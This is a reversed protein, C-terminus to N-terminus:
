NGNGYVEFLGAAGMGGGICMTVMGLGGGRRRLEHILTLTLKSGTCGLPHGMAVAGGNVNVKDESLGLERIVALSQCAFAENLEILDVDGLEVGTRKMLKPIAEVPGIGMIEPAVGAVSFGKFVALPKLGLEDARTRSMVVVAAAGDSTQSSNGATVQGKLKFVPRLKALVEVTTDARPGEDTDFLLEEENISGKEGPTKIKVTLPVIEDKFRGEKIADLAKMHSQYSFQDSDERTIGYKEAVNEATLGMALYLDPLDEALEPNPAVRMSENFPVMTMSEAGGAIIVDAGGAMIRESAAAITQLGSSCFRNITAAPVSQPMGARMAAIRGMNMGQEKEPLACGLYVDDVDEAKLGPARKISEAFCAAAMTDTRTNKLTGRPSKGIPTRAGSVIVAEEM